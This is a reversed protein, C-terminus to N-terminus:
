SSLTFNFYKNGIKCKINEVAEYRLVNLAMFSELDTNLDSIFDKLLNEYDGVCWVLSM